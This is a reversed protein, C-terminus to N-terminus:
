PRRRGYRCSRMAYWFFLPASIFTRRWLRSPQQVLRPLWELGLLRFVSPSRRITRAYFDFVAGVAGAVSVNLQDRNQHLWLEQKPATMGVWLIDASSSNVADVMQSHELDSFSEAFPPSYTGAVTVNPFDRRFRKVIRRLVEDTSGLFFVTGSESENLQSSVEWFLDFGTIRRRLDGGCLLSALVVGVGDPLLWTANQLADRFSARTRGLVYSHPNLCGVMECKKEQSNAVKVIERACALVDDHYVYYGALEKIM